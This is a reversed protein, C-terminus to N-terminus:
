RSVAGRLRQKLEMQQRSREAAQSELRTVADALDQRAEIRERQLSVPEKLHARRLQHPQESPPAKAELDLELTAGAGEPLDRRSVATWRREGESLEVSYTLRGSSGGPVPITLEFRGDGEPELVVDQQYALEPVSLHVTTPGSVYPGSRLQGRVAMTRTPAVAVPTPQFAPAAPQPSSSTLLWALCFGITLAFAVLPPRLM